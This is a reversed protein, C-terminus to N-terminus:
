LKATSPELLTLLSSPVTCTRSSSHVGSEPGKQKPESSERPVWYLENETIVAILPRPDFSPMTDRCIVVPHDLGSLADEVCEIHLPDRYREKRDTKENSVNHM